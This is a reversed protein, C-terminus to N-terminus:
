KSFNVNSFLVLEWRKVKQMELRKVRVEVWKNGSPRPPVIQFGEFGSFKRDEGYFISSRL